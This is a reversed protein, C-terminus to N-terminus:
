DKASGNWAPSQRRGDRLQPKRPEMTLRMEQLEEVESKSDDLIEIHITQSVGYHFLSFNKELPAGVEDDSGKRAIRECIFLMSIKFFIAITVAETNLLSSLIM